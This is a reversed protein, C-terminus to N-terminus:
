KPPGVHLAYVGAPGGMVVTERAIAPATWYYSQIGESALEDQDPPDAGDLLVEGTRRKYVFLGNGFGHVFFLRSGHIVSPWSTVSTHVRHDWVKEGTATSFSMVYGSITGVYVLEGDTSVTKGLNFGGDHITYRWLEDGTHRDLAILYAGANIFVREHGVAVGVFGGTHNISDQIAPEYDMYTPAEYQWRVEGTAAEICFLTGTEGRRSWDVPDGRSTFHQSPLYLLGDDSIDGPYFLRFPPVHSTAPEANPGPPLDVRYVIQGTTKDIAVLESWGSVYLRSADQLMEHAAGPEFDAGLEGGWALTGDHHWAGVWRATNYYIREADSLIATGYSLRGLPAKWIPAGSDLDFARLSDAAM